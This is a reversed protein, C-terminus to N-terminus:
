CHPAAPAAPTTPPPPNQPQLGAVWGRLADICLQRGDMLPPSFPPQRETLGLLDATVRVQGDCQEGAGIGIVPITLEQSLGAALDAPVHELVL